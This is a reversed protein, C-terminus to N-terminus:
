PSGPPALCLVDGCVIPDSSNAFETITTSIVEGSPGILSTTINIGLEGTGDDDGNWELIAPAIAIFGDPGKPETGRVIAIELLKESGVKDWGTEDVDFIDVYADM